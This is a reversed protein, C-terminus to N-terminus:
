AEHNGKWLILIFFQEYQGFWELSIAYDQLIKRIEKLRSPARFLWQRYIAKMHSFQPRFMGVVRTRIDLTDAARCIEKIAVPCQALVEHSLVM